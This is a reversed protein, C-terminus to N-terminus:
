HNKSRDAADRPTEAGKRRNRRKRILQTIERGRAAAEHLNEMDQATLPSESDSFERHIAYAIRAQEYEHRLRYHDMAEDLYRHELILDDSPGDAILKGLINTYAKLIQKTSM